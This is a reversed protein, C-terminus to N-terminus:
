RKVAIITLMAGKGFCAALVEAPTALWNLVLYALVSISEREGLIQQRTPEGRPFLSSSLATPGDRLSWTSQREISFGHRRLLNLLAKPEFLILHRPVELGKWRKGFWLSQWSAINPIRLLIKGGPELAHRCRDLFPGPERLHELLHFFSIARFSEPEPNWDATALRVVDLGFRDRAYAVARPDVELGKVRFGKERILALWDGRGCGVDLFRSGPPLGLRDIWAMLDWQLMWRVYGRQLRSFLSRAETERWYGSPYFSSITKQDPIPWQFVSRCTECRFLDARYETVRYFFDGTTLFFGSDGGCVPCPPRADGTEHNGGDGSGPRM